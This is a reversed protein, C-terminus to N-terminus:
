PRSYKIDYNGSVTAASSSGPTLGSTTNPKVVGNWTQSQNPSMSVQTPNVTIPGTTTLNVTGEEYKDTTKSYSGSYQSSQNNQSSYYLSTQASVKVSFLLLCIISLYNSLNKM